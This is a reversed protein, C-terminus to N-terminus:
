HVQKWELWLFSHHDTDNIHGRTKTHIHSNHEEQAAPTLHIFTLTTNHVINM